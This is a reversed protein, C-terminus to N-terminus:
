LNAIVEGLADYWTRWKNAIQENLVIDHVLSGRQWVSGENRDDPPDTSEDRLDYSALLERSTELRGDRHTVQTRVHRYLMTLPDANISGGCDPCFKTTHKDCCTIM